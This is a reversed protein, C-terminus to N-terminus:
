WLEIKDLQEQDTPEYALLAAMERHVYARYRTVSEAGTRSFFARSTREPREGVANYYSNFLYRFRQDFERYGPAHPALIFTEFFWTTHARHWKAPSAELCSQVMQDEPSLSATLRDSTARVERYREELSASRRDIAQSAPQISMRGQALRAAYVKGRNPHLYARKTAFMQSASFTGGVKGRKRGISM